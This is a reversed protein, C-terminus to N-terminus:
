EIKSKQLDVRWEGFDVGNKFRTDSEIVNARKWKSMVGKIWGGNVGKCEEIVVYQLANTKLSLIDVCDITWGRLWLVKLKTLEMGNFLNSLKPPTLINWGWVNPTQKAGIFLYELGPFCAIFRSLMKVFEGTRRESLYVGVFDIGVLSLGRLTYIPNSIKEKEPCIRWNEIRLMELCPFFKGLDALVSFKVSQTQSCSIHLCRLRANMEPHRHHLRGTEGARYLNRLFADYEAESVKGCTQIAFSKLHPAAAILSVISM